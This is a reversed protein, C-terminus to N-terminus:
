KHNKNIKIKIIIDNFFERSNIKKYHINEVNTQIDIECKDEINEDIDIYTKFPIKYKITKKGRKMGYQYYEISERLIGTVVVKKPNKDYVEYEISEIEAGINEIRKIPANTDPIKINKNFRIQKSICKSEKENCLNSEGKFENGVELITNELENSDVKSLSQMSTVEAKFKIMKIEDSLLKKIVVDDLSEVDLVDGDVTLSGKVFELYPPINIKVSVNDADVKEMNRINVTYTLIDGLKASIEEHGKIKMNNSDLGEM